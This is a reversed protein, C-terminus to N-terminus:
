TCGGWQIVLLTDKYLNSLSIENLNADYVVVDPVIKGVKPSREEWPARDRRQQALLVSTVLLICVLSWAMLLIIKKKMAERRLM